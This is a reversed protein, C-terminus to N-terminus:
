FFPSTTNSQSDSNGHEIAAEYIPLHLLFDNVHETENFKCFCTNVQVRRVTSNRTKLSKVREHHLDRDYLFCYISLLYLTM